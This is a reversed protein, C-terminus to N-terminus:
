VVIATESVSSCNPPCQDEIPADPPGNKYGSHELWVDPYSLEAGTRTDTNDSYFFLMEMALAHWQALVTKAHKEFIIDFNGANSGALLASQAAALLREGETEVSHQRKEVMAHMKDWRIQCVDMVKRSAWNLSNKEFQKPDAFALPM